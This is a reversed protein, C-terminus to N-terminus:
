ITKKELKSQIKNTQFRKIRDFIVNEDPHALLSVVCEFPSVTSKKELLIVFKKLFTLQRKAYQWTQEQIKKILGSLKQQDEGAEIWRLIETYGILGKKQLFDKWSTNVMLRTENIWGDNLIMCTTRQNIASKLFDREPALGIVCADFPPAFSPQQSSPKQGTADWIDLARKIRYHDHPHLQNARESDIEKLREWLSTPSSTNTNTHNEKSKELSLPPFFLSKIYFLSGGVIIPLKGRQNIEKIKNIVLTRFQLVDLDEPHNIIDFLHHPIASTKWPPKATGISFPTYFQGVDANIIEAPIQKAIKESLTTKGSATPGTIIM